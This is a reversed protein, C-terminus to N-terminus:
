SAPVGVHLYNRKDRDQFIEAQDTAQTTISWGCLDGSAMASTGAHQYREGGVNVHPDDSSDWLHQPCEHRLPSSPASTPAPRRESATRRAM